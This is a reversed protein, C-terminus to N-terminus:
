EHVIESVIEQIKSRIEPDEVSRSMNHQRPRINIMSDFEIFDDKGYHEPYVNFGWLDGQKSGHELLYQEEDVHMVADFVVIRKELDVVCKVMDGYMKKAMERLEALSIKDVQKM